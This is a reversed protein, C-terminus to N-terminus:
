PRRGDSTDRPPLTVFQMYLAVHLNIVYGKGSSIWLGNRSGPIATGLSSSIIRRRCGTAGQRSGCTTRSTRLSGAPCIRLPKSNMICKGKSKNSTAYSTISSPRSQLWCHFIDGLMRCYASILHCSIYDRKTKSLLQVSCQILPLIPILATRSRDAIRSGVAWRSCISAVSRSSTM